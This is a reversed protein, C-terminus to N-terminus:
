QQALFDEVVDHLHIESLEERNCIQVLEALAAKDSTVDRISSLLVPPDSGEPEDYAAIGYSVREHDEKIQEETLEYRIKM